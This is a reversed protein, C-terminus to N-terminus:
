GKSSVLFFIGTSVGAFGIVLMSAISEPSVIFVVLIAVDCLLMFLSTVIRMIGKM